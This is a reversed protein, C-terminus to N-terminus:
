LSKIEKDLNSIFHDINDIFNRNLNLEKMFEQDTIYEGQQLLEKLLDTSNADNVIRNIFQYAYIFSEMYDVNYGFVYFEQVRVWNYRNIPLEAFGVFFHFDNVIKYYTDSVFKSTLRNNLSDMSLEMEVISLEYPLFFADKFFDLIKITISQNSIGEINDKNRLLYKTLLLENVYSCFETKSVSLESYIYSPASQAYYQGVAGGIEHILAYLSDLNAQWNMLIYPHVAYM